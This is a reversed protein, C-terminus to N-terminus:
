DTMLLSLSMALANIIFHAVITPGIRRIVFEAGGLVAGVGSLVMILGINGTGRSPDFHAMGFLVAQVAVALVVGMRSLLGRFLLGRFLMEEVVPAVLVAVVLMSLIYGRDAALDDIGETNSIFPIDLSLVVFAILAQTGLCVLWTVVGWGIDIRRFVLGSDARLSGTGWRRSAWMGVLLSPAYGILASLAVYVVIPWRYQALWEIAYRSAVLSALLTVVTVLAVPLPLQQHPPKPTKVKAAVQGTWARGDWYRLGGAIWPDAYWGAPHDVVPRDGTPPLGPLETM